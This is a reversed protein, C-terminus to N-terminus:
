WTIVPMKDNFNGWMVPHQKNGSIHSVGQGVFKFLEEATIIRDRNTDANGRLGKQLFTTFYGNKMDWQEISYESTRSSLFLMVNSNKASNVAKSSNSSQIRIGGSHCADIFMMKNRCKSKKMANRIMDYSINGNSACVGGIFGHGSFFFVVIDDKKAKSFLEEITYIIHEITADKNLLLSYETNGNTAYIAAITKADQVTLNLNKIPGPYDSYDTIGASVLYIKAKAQGGFFILCTILLLKSVFLMM